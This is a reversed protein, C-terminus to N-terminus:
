AVEWWFAISRPQAAVSARTMQGSDIKGQWYALGGAEAERFLFDRYLQMAFYKSSTFVDNDKTGVTLGNAAELSDPFQDNDSDSVSGTARYGPRM